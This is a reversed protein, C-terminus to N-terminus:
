LCEENGGNKISFNIILISLSVKIMYYLSKFPTISSKGGTREHMKVGVEKISYGKKLLTIIADPEPYDKSYEKSFMEIIERDAARFGSTPDKISQGTCVKILKSLFSIGLRRLKTSKFESENGVFRSGVTFNAEHKIIPDILQEIYNIDHQGDGDFQIAIDYGNEYAYKYGAQVAGGIGLNCVLDIVKINENLCTKLTGDTSGDNIVLYDLVIGESVAKNKISKCTELINLEENYAPVIILIKM